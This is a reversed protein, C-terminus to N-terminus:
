EETALQDFVELKQRTVIQGHRVVQEKYLIIPSITEDILEVGLELSDDRISDIIELAMGPNYPKGTVDIVEFGIDQFFREYKRIVHRGITSQSELTSLWQRLRWAEVCLESLQEIQCEITENLSM